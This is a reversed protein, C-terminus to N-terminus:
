VHEDHRVPRQVQDAEASETPSGNGPSVPGTMWRKDVSRSRTGVSRELKPRPRSATPIRGVVSM